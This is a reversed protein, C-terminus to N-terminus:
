DESESLPVDKCSDIATGRVEFALERANRLQTFGELCVPHSLWLEKSTLKVMHFVVTGDSRLRAFNGYIELTPQGYKYIATVALIEDIGLIPEGSGSRRTSALNQLQLVARAGFAGLYQARRKGISMNDDFGATIIFFKPVCAYDGRKVILTPWLPGHDEVVKPLDDFHEGDVWEPWLAPDTSSALRRADVMATEPAHPLLAPGGLILAMIHQADGAPGRLFDGKFPRARSPSIQNSDDGFVQGCFLKWTEDKFGKLDERPDMLRAQVDEM